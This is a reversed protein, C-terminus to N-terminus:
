AFPIDILDNRELNIESEISALVCLCWSDSQSLSKTDAKSKAVQLTQKKEGDVM